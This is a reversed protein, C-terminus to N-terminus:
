DEEDAGSRAANPLGLISANGEAWNKLLQASGANASDRDALRIRVEDPDASAFAGASIRHSPAIPDVFRDIPALVPDLHPKAAAGAKRSDEDIRLVFVNDIGTAKPVSPAVALVAAHVFGGVPPLM